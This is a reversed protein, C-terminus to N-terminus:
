DADLAIRATAVRGECLRCMADGEPVDSRMELPTVFFRQCATRIATDNVSEARHWLPQEVDRNERGHPLPQRAWVSPNM